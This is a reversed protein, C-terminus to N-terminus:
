WPVRVCASSVRRDGGADRNAWMWASDAMHGRGRCPVLASGDSLESNLGARANLGEHGCQLRTHPM